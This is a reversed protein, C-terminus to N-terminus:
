GLVSELEGRITQEIRGRFFSAALPLQGHLSVLSEEVNMAGHIPFGMTRFAFNLTCGVWSGEMDALKDAHETRMREVFQQLRATAEDQTLRHAVNVAFQSM